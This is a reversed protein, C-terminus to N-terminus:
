CITHKTSIAGEKRIYSVVHPLQKCGSYLDLLKQLCTPGSIEHFDVRDLM